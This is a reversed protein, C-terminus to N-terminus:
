ASSPMRSGRQDRPSPSTYLLCPYLKIADLDSQSLYIDIVTSDNLSSTSTQLTYMQVPSVASSQVTVASVTLTSANVTEDFTLTLLGQDVDLTFVEILPSTMDQTFRSVSQPDALSVNVVSNNFTDTVLNFDFSIFTSNEDVALESM